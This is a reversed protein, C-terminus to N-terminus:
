CGSNNADDAEKRLWETFSVVNCTPRETRVPCKDCMYGDSCCDTVKDIFSALEADSMRRIRDGNSKTPASIEAERRQKLETLWESLQGHERNCESCGSNAVDRAHSIAEDLTMM